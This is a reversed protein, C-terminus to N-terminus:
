LYITSALFRGRVMGKAGKECYVEWEELLRYLARLFDGAVTIDFLM